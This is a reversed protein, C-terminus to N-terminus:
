SQAAAGTLVSDLAALTATFAPVGGAVADVECDYRTRWGQTQWFSLQVQPQPAGRALALRCTTQTPQLDRELARMDTAAVAGVLDALVEGDISGVVQEDIPRGRDRMTYGGNARIEIELQRSPVAIAVIPDQPLLGLSPNAGFRTRDAKSWAWVEGAMTTIWLTEDDVAYDVGDSLAQGVDSVIQSAKPQPRLDDLPCLDVTRQQPAWLGTATRALPGTSRVCSADVVIAGGEDVVLEAYFRPQLENGGSDFRDELKWRIGTLPLDAVEARRLHMVAGDAAIALEDDSGEITDFREWVDHFLQQALDPCEEVTWRRNRRVSLWGDDVTYQAASVNCGDSVEVTGNRLFRLSPGDRHSDPLTVEGDPTEFREVLWLDRVLDEFVFDGTGSRESAHGSVSSCAVALVALAALARRM